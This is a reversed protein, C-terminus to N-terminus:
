SGEKPKKNLAPRQNQTPTSNVSKDVIEGSYLRSGLPSANAAPQSNKTVEMAIGDREKIVQKVRQWDIREEVQQNKALTQVSKFFDPIRQYYDGHVEL